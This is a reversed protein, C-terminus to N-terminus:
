YLVSAEILYEDHVLNSEVWRDLNSTSITVTRRVERPTKYGDEDLVWLVKGLVVSYSAQQKVMPMVVIM